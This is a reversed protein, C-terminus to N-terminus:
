TLGVTERLRRIGYRVVGATSPPPRHMTDVSEPRIRVTVRHGDDHPYERGLYQRALEDVHEDAGAETLATVEGRLAVHRYPNDPDLVSVAVRRDQRLNREKRRGRATNVLVEGTEEDYDVWVPTVHPTGDPLTTAVHGFSEKEFVDRFQEPIGPM